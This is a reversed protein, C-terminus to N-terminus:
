LPMILGIKNAEERTRVGGQVQAAAYRREVFMCELYSYLIVAFTVNM